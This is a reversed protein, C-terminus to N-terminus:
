HRTTIQLVTRDLILLAASVANPPQYLRLERQKNSWQLLSSHLVCMPKLSIPEFMIWSVTLQLTFAVLMKMFRVEIRDAICTNQCLTEIVDEDFHLMRTEIDM